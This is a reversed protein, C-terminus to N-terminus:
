YLCVYGEEKLVFIQHSKNFRRGVFKPNYRPIGDTRGVIYPEYGM